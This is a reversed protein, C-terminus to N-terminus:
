DEAGECSWSRELGCTFNLCWIECLVGWVRGTTCLGASSRLLWFDAALPTKTISFSVIFQLEPHESLSQVPKRAKSKDKLYWQDWAFVRSEPLHFSGLIPIEGWSQIESFSESGMWRGEKHCKTYRVEMVHKKLKDKGWGGNCEAYCLSNM